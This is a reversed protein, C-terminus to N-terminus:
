GSVETSLTDLLKRGATSIFYRRRYNERDHLSIVLGRKELSRLRPAIRLAASMTGTWSRAGQAGRGLRRAGQVDLKGAIRAATDGKDAHLSWPHRDLWVLAELFERDNPLDPLDENYSRAM